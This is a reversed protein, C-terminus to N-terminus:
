HLNADPKMAGAMTREREREKARLTCVPGRPSGLVPEATRERERRRTETGNRSSSAMPFSFVRLPFLASFLFFCCCCCCSFGLISTPQLLQAACM